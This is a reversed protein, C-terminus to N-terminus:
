AHSDAGTKRLNVVIFVVFVAAALAWWQFAYARHKEPRMALVAAPSWARLFGDPAVPDLRVAFPRLEVGLAQSLRGMELRAVRLPRQRYDPEGVTFFASPMALTGSIDTARAPPVLPLWKADQARAVWGRNVLIYHTDGAPLFPTYVHFGYQAGHPQNDLFLTRSNDFRGQIRVPFDVVDDGQRLVEALPLAAQHARAQYRELMVEKEAARHLQWLALQCFLAIGLVALLAGYRPPAFVRRGFTLTLLPQQLFARM